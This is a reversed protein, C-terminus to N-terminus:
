LTKFVGNEDKAYTFELLFYFSCLLFAQIVIAAIGSYFSNEYEKEHRGLIQLFMKYLEYLSFFKANNKM